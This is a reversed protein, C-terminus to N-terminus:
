EAPLPSQPEDSSSQPEAGQPEDRARAARGHRAATGPPLAPGRPAVPADVSSARLLLQLVSPRPASTGSLDERKVPRPARTPSLGRPAAARLTRLKALAHRQVAAAAGQLQALASLQARRKQRLPSAVRCRSAAQGALQDAKVNGSWWGAPLGRARGQAASLHSPIWSARLRGELAAQQLVLARARLPGRLLETTAARVRQVLHVAVQSDSVVHVGRPHRHLAAEFATLEAAMASQTGHVRGSWCRLGDTLGWGARALLPDKGDLCSGDAFLTPPGAQDLFHPQHGPPAPLLNLLQPLACRKHLEILKSNERLLLFRRDVLPTRAFASLM